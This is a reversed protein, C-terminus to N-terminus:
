WSLRAVQMSRLQGAVTACIGVPLPTLTRRDLAPLVVSMLRLDRAQFMASDSVGLVVRPRRKFVRMCEGLLAAVTTGQQSALIKLICGSDPDLIDLADSIMAACDDVFLYDRVTDLPVYISIPQGRLHARCIHSILGQAKGLNQGPGYLNAIRGVLVPIGTADAFSAAAQEMALKAEGYASTPRPVHRETFPPGSSGAYVGGASSAVFLAGPPAPGIAALAELFRAFVRVEDRLANESTATVGAGACWAVRWPVGLAESRAAVRALGASLAPVSRDPDVWPVMEHHVVGGSRRIRAALAGGLLGGAGVVWTLPSDPVAPTMATM